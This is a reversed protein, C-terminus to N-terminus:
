FRHEEELVILVPKARAKEELGMAASYQLIKRSLLTSLAQEGLNSVNKLEVLVVKGQRLDSLISGVSSPGDSEM